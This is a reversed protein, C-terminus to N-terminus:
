LLLSLREIEDPDDITKVIHRDVDRQLDIELPTRLPVGKHNVVIAIQPRLTYEEKKRTIYSIEGTNLTVFAGVPYFSGLDYMRSMENIFRQAVYPSFHNGTNRMVYILAENVTYPKKYARETTLADFVDCVSVISAFNGIGDEKLKLPYGSGDWKEHHFLIMKKIYSSLSSDNKVINFGYIPHYKMVRFEEETLNDHKNLIALPVKIKGIDHLFGGVGVEKIFYTNFGLKKTLFMSLIGVNISHQYTYSDYDKLVLLNLFGHPRTEMDVFFRNIAERAQNSDPLKGYRIETVIEDFASQAFSLTAESFMPTAQPSQKWKPPAYYVTQIGKVKLKSLFADTLVKRAPWLMTGNEDYLIGSLVTGPKLFRVEVAEFKEKELM